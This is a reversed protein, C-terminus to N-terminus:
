TAGIGYDWGPRASDISVMCWDSTAAHASGRVARPAETQLDETVTIGGVGLEELAEKLYHL